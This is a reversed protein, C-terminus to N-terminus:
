THTTNYIQPFGTLETEQRGESFVICEENIFLTMRVQEDRDAM